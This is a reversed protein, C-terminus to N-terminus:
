RKCIAKFVRAILLEIIMSIYDQSLTIQNQVAPKEKLLFLRAAKMLNLLALDEPDEVYYGFVSARKNEEANRVAEKIDKLLWKWLFINDGLVM